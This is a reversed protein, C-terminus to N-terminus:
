AVRRIEDGLELADIAAARSVTPYYYEVDEVRITEGDVLRTITDFAIRTQDITPWGGLRDRDITIHQKPHRFDVVRRRNLNTFPEFVEELSFLMLNGPKGTLDITSGEPTRFIIHKGHMGFQYESAHGSFRMQRLAKFAKDIQQM